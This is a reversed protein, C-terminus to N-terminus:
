SRRAFSVSSDADAQATQHPSHGQLSRSQYTWELVSVQVSQASEVSHNQRTVRQRPTGAVDDPTIANLNGLGAGFMYILFLDFFRLCHIITGDALGRQEKLYVEYERRLCAHPTMDILLPTQATADAHAILFDRFCELRYKSHKRDKRSAEAPIQTFLKTVHNDTLDSMDTETQRLAEIPADVSKRYQTVIPANYGIMAAREHSAGHHDAKFRHVGDTTSFDSILYEREDRSTGIPTPLRKCEIPLPTQYENYEHDEILIVQGSPSAVLGVSRHNDAEDSEERRFQLIPGRRLMNMRSRDAFPLSISRRWGFPEVWAQGMQDFPLGIEM